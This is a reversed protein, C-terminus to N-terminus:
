TSVRTKTTEGGQIDYYYHGMTNVVTTSRIYQLQITFLLYLLLYNWKRENNSLLTIIRSMYNLISFHVNTRSLQNTFLGALIKCKSLM